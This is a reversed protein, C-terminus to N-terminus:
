VLLEISEYRKLRCLSILLSIIEYLLERLSESKFESVFKISLVPFVYVKESFNLLVFIEDSPNTREELGELNDISCINLHFVVLQSM